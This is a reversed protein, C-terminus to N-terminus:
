EFLVFGSTTSTTTAASTASKGKAGVASKAKSASAAAAAAVVSAANADQGVAPSLLDLSTNQGVNIDAFRLVNWFAFSPLFRVARVSRRRTRLAGERREDPVRAVGAARRAGVDFRWSRIRLNFIM